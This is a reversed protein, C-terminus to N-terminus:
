CDHWQSLGADCSESYQRYQFRSRETWEAICQRDELPKGETRSSHSGVVIPMPVSKAFIQSRMNYRFYETVNETSAIFGGILAMSKAFTGFYIDVGDTVGQEEP